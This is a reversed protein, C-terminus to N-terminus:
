PAPVTKPYGADAQVEEIQLTHRESHASLFIIWGYADLPGAAPHEAAHLRFDGGNKVFEITKQREARFATLAEAPTAYKGTPKLPEPAQFKKSRDLLMKGLMEEKRAGALMEASAETKMAPEIMGRILAESAVIHEAAEAVSWREPAAKWIWQAGAVGGISKELRAATRELHAVLAAREADTMSDAAFTPIALAVLMALAFVRKM